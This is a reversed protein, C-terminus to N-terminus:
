YRKGYYEDDSARVIISCITIIIGALFLSGLGLYRLISFYRQFISNYYEHIFATIAMIYLWVGASSYGIIRYITVKGPKSYKVVLCIFFIPALVFGLVIAILLTKEVGMYRSFLVTSFFVVLLLIKRSSIM